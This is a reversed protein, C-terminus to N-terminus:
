DAPNWTVQAEVISMCQINYPWDTSTADQDLKIASLTVKYTTGDVPTGYWTDTDENFLYENSTNALEPASFILDGDPAYMMIKYADADDVDEWSLYIGQNATRFVISELVPVALVDDELVDSSTYVDTENYVADFTYTGELPKTESYTDMEDANNFYFINDEFADLELESDDPLTVTASKIAQSGYIYCVRSYKIVDDVKKVRVYVDTEAEFQEDDTEICSVPSLSFALLIILGFISHISQKMKFYKINNINM